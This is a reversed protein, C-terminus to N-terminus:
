SREHLHEGRDTIMSKRRLGDVAFYVAGVAQAFQAVTFKDDEKLQQMLPTFALNSDAIEMEIDPVISQAGQKMAEFCSKRKVLRGFLIRKKSKPKLIRETEVMTVGLSQGIEFWIRYNIEDQEREFLAMMHELFPKRMDPNDSPVLFRVCNSNVENRVFGKQILELMWDDRKGPFYKMALRFVGSQSAYKQLTGSLDTNFNRVSRLDDPDYRREPHSGLDIIYNYVELPIDPISGDERVWGTGLETGLTHAFFGEELTVEKDSAALEVAATFAAMPGDNTFSVAKPDRCYKGLVDNLHTLQRFDLEYHIDPNNRIGRTKYVEGGVIKDNVVVDPFCLGLADFLKEEEAFYPEAKSCAKEMLKHDADQKMADAILKTVEEPLPKEGIAAALQVSMLRCLLEVPYILQCSKKFQSPFWDYEKMCLIKGNYILALKIDTGGIDVGLVKKNGLMRVPRRFVETDGDLVEVYDPLVPMSNIDLVEIDFRNDTGDSLAELMRDSVNICRGYGRRAARSKSIGFEAKVDEILEKLTAQSTDIYLSLTRGGLSSLINYIEAKLYDGALLKTPKEDLVRPITFTFHRYHQGDILLLRAEVTYSKELSEFCTRVQNIYVSDGAATSELIQNITM